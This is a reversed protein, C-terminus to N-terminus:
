HRASPFVHSLLDLQPVRQLRQVLPHDVLSQVRDTILVRGAALTIRKGQPAIAALEQVGLPAIQRMSLRRFEERVLRAPMVPSLKKQLENSIVKLALVGEHGVYRALKTTTD